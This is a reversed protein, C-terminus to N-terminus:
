PNPTGLVRRWWPRNTWRRQFIADEIRGYYDYPGDDSLRTVAVQNLTAYEQLIAFFFESDVEPERGVVHIGLWRQRSNPDDVSLSLRFGAADWAQYDPGQELEVSDVMGDVAEAYSRFCVLYGHDEADRYLIPYLPQQETM